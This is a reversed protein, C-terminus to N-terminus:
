SITVQIKSEISKRVGEIVMIRDIDCGSDLHEEVIEKARTDSDGCEDLQGCSECYVCYGSM